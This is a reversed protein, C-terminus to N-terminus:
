SCSSSSSLALTISHHLVEGSNGARGIVVADGAAVFPDCHFDHADLTGLRDAKVRLALFVRHRGIEDPRHDDSILDQDMGSHRDAVQAKAV